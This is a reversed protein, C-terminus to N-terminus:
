SPRMYAIASLLIVSRESGKVEREFMGILDRLPGADIVMKDEPKPDNIVKAFGNQDIRARVIDIIDSHVVAPNNGFYVVNRVGRSFRILHLQKRANFKALIYSPFLAETIYTQAGTSANFRRTKIKAHLTEIGGAVLYRSAREEQKRHTYIAYWQRDEAETENDM